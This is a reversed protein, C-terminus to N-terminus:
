YPAWTPHYILRITCAKVQKPDAAMRSSRTFFSTRARGGCGARSLRLIGKGRTPLPILLNDATAVAVLQSWRRTEAARVRPPAIADVVGVIVDFELVGDVEIADDVGGAGVVEEVWACEGESIAPKSPERKAPPRPPEHGSTASERPPHTGMRGRPNAAPTASGPEVTRRPGPVEVGARRAGGPALVTPPSPERAASPEAPPRTGEASSCGFSM